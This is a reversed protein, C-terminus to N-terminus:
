VMEGNGTSINQISGLGSHSSAASAGNSSYGVPARNIVDSKAVMCIKNGLREICRQMKSIAKLNRQSIESFDAQMTALQGRLIPDISGSIEEKREMLETMGKQYTAAAHLKEEQLSLFKDIQSADLAGIEREYISKLAQVRAMMSRMAHTPNTPLSPTYKQNNTM